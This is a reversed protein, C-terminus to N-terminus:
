EPVCEKLQPIGIVESASACLLTIEMGKSLGAAYGKQDAGLAASAGLFDDSAGIRVVPNDSLDSDIALVTGKVRLPQNLWEQAAIENQKFASVIASAEVDLRQVDAAVVNSATGGPTTSPSKPVLIGVVIIGGLVLLGISFCGMGKSKPKDPSSKDEQIKGQALMNEMEGKQVAPQDTGCFRCGAAELEIWEACRVCRKKM